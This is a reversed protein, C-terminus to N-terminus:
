LEVWVPTGVAMMQRLYEANWNALRFCGHSETRGVQEPIPTGHIGYGARSLGIWTVGVPNNPGPPIILKRGIQRAEASEAFVAPNFTYNPDKVVVVAQLEGVPRKDAIRGISCPFHALLGGRADFARLYRNALSIRVLAARRAPPYSANPVILPTGASVAQWNVGPNLRRLLGPSAQCKEAVLELISEYGLRSLESKAIWGTPVSHLGALDEATVTFTRYLPRTFKLEGQTERDLRGSEELGRAFQFARFAWATQAGGVGDLSGAGIGYATLAIQAELINTPARNPITRLEGAPPVVVVPPNTQKPLVVVPPNTRAPPPLVPRVLPVSEEAMVPVPNTVVPVVPPVNTPEISVNPPPALPFQALPPLPPQPETWFWWWVGVGALLLLVGAALWWRVQSGRRRRAPSKLKHRAM